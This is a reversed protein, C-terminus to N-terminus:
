DFSNKINNDILFDKLKWHYKIKIQGQQSETELDVFNIIIKKRKDDNRTNIINSNDIIKDIMALKNNKFIIIAGNAIKLIYVDFVIASAIYIIMIISFVLSYTDIKANDFNVAIIGFLIVLIVFLIPMIIFVFAYILNIITKNKYINVDQKEFKMLKLINKILGYSLYLNLAFILISLVFGSITTAQHVSTFLM